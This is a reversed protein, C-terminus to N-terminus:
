WGEVSGRHRFLMLLFFPAGIAATLIGIPLEQPALLTRSALDAASMLVAGALAAAPLLAQHGPGLRMRVWHPALLGVFGILGALAVCCAVALVIALLVSRKLREVNVGLHRAEAEGLLLADLAQSQRPLWILAGVVLPATLAIETWGAKSLSGYMWFSINRLSAPDAVSLLFGIGAAALANTALGSLLLTTVRTAGDIRAIRAAIAAALLGGVFASAPTAIAQAWPALAPLAVIAAAAALAAGSAVGVLGPDALPNRFLGQMAAGSQALSAGIMLALVVRPLRLDVITAVTFPDPAATMPLGIASLLSQLIHLPPLAISGWCLGLMALAAALIALLATLRRSSHSRAAPLPMVGM